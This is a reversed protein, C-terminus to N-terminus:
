NNNDVISAFDHFPAKFNRFSILDSLWIEREGEGEGEENCGERERELDIRVDRSPVRKRAVSGLDEKQITAKLTLIIATCRQFLM